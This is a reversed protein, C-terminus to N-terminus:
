NEERPLLEVAVLEPAGIAHDKGWVNFGLYMRGGVFMINEPEDSKRDLPIYEVFNGDWDYKVICPLRHLVFYLYDDDSTMGQTVYRTNVATFDRLKVFDSDTLAFDMGYSKGVAYQDRRENYSMCYIDYGIDRSGLYRLTEPDVYSIVSRNPANHTIVLLGTKDNYTIDNAHDIPMEESKQLLKGTEPDYKGIIGTQIGDKVWTMHAFYLYKGDTGGGQLVPFREDTYLSCVTTCRGVTRGYPLLLAEIGHWDRAAALEGMKINLADRTEPTMISM